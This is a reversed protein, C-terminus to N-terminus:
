TELTDRVVQIADEIKTEDVFINITSKSTTVEIINIHESALAGSIRAIWGPSDVFVPNNLEILGVSGRCSLAKCLNLRHLNGILRDPNESSTFVTLSAKGTSIGYIPRNGFSAMLKGVRDPEINCVMSVAVIGRTETIESSNANFVGTIETGGSRIGNSFSVVRLKQDPLKYKLSEAKVIKAGGYALAFMESIDLKKLPRAEPVMKPDASMVGETEKVLIIEEAGLCNALVMATTDSGGRGLTTLNGDEDRGLFGCIVIMKERLLPELHHRVRECTKEMDVEADRSNADTVIPWDEHSPELYDAKAGLSRLASCFIRASTREGMSVIEAYDRDEVDGIKSMVGVLNDTAGAMASVVVVVQNYGSELVMEAAKRMKKGTALDVGGFKIVARNGAGSM